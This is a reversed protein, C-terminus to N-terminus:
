EIRIGSAVADRVFPAQKHLMIEFEEPTYCLADVHVDPWVDNLFQGMRNVFRVERFRESVIILDIDSEETATGKARSGFIFLHTPAYQSRIYDLKEELFRDVVEDVFKRRAM